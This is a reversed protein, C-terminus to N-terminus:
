LGKDNGDHTERSMMQVQPVDHIPWGASGANIRQPAELHGEYMVQEECESAETETSYSEASTPRDWVARTGSVVRNMGLGPSSAASSNLDAPNFDTMSPFCIQQQQQQQQQPTRVPWAATRTALLAASHKRPQDQAREHVLAKAQYSSETYARSAQQSDIGDPQYGAASFTQQGSQGDLRDWFQGGAPANGPVQGQHAGSAALQGQSQVMDARQQSTQQAASCWAKQEAHQAEVVDHSVGHTAANYSDRRSRPYDTCGNSQLRMPARSVLSEAGLLVNQGSQSMMMHDRDNSM